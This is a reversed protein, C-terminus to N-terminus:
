GRNYAGEDIVREIVYTTKRQYAQNPEPYMVQISDLASAEDSWVDYVNGENDVVIYVTKM